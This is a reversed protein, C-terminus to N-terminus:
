LVISSFCCMQFLLCFCFVSLIVFLAHPFILVCVKPFSFFSLYVSFNAFQKCCCGWFLFYIILCCLFFFGLVYFLSFAFFFCILLLCLAALFRFVVCLVFCFFSVFVNLCGRALFVFLEVGLCLFSYLWVGQFYCGSAWIFLYPLFFQMPLLLYCYLFVCWSGRLRVSSGFRCIYGVFSLLRV